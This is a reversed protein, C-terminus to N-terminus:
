VGARAKCVGLNQFQLLLEGMDAIVRNIQVDNPLAYGTKLHAGGAFHWVEMSAAQAARVGMESDEIVVCKDPSVGQKQAALLFIDPAPKGMKVESATTCRGDFYAALGTTRLSAELRQPSSSTALCYPLQLSSLVTEVGTMPRLHDSIEALLRGRYAEQFDAPLPKNFRQRAREAANAFSRGLFDLRFDEFTIPMGASAMMSMLVRASLMESDVLVGDCDFIVLDYASTM